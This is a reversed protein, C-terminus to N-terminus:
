VRTARKISPKIVSIIVCGEENRLNDGHDTEGRSLLLLWRVSVSDLGTCLSGSCDKLFMFRAVKDSLM